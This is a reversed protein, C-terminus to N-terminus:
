HEPSFFLYRVRSFITQKTMQPGLVSKPSIGGGGVDSRPRYVIIAQNEKYILSFFFFCVCLHSSVSENTKLRNDFIEWFKIQTFFNKITPPPLNCFTGAPYMCHLFIWLFLKKLTTLLHLSASFDLGGGFTVDRVLVWRVNLTGSIICTSFSKEITEGPFGRLTNRKLDLYFRLFIIKVQVM